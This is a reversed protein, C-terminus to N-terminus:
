VHAPLARKWGCEPCGPITQGALSYGCSPCHNRRLRLLRRAGFIGGFLMIWATAYLGTDLLFGPWIPRWPLARILALENSGGRPPLPVGGRAIWSNDSRRNDNLECWLALSPWGRADELGRSARSESPADAKLMPEQPLNGWRLDLEGYMPADRVPMMAELSGAPPPWPPEGRRLVYWGRREVGPKAVVTLKVHYRDGKFTRVYHGGALPLWAALAWAVAVTTVAGALVGAALWQIAQACTSRRSRM